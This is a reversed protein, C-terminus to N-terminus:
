YPSSSVSYCISKLTGREEKKEGKGVRKHPNDQAHAFVLQHVNGKNHHCFIGYHRTNFGIEFLRRNQISAQNELYVTPVYAQNKHQCVYFYRTQISAQHSYFGLGSM